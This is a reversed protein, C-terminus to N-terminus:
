NELILRCRSGPPFDERGASAGQVAERDITDVRPRSGCRARRPMNETSAAFLRRALTFSERPRNHCGFLAAHIIWTPPV